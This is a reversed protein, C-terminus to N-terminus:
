GERPTHSAETLEAYAGDDTSSPGSMPTKAEGRWQAAQAPRHGPLRAPLRRVPLARRPLEVKRSTRMSHAWPAARVWSSGHRPSWLASVTRRPKWRAVTAVAWLLSRTMKQTGSWPSRRDRGAYRSRLSSPRACRGASSHSASCVRCRGRWRTPEWARRPRIRGAGACRPGAVPGLAPAARTARDRAAVAGEGVAARVAGRQGVIGQTQIGFRNCLM